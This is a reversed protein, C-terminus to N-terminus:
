KEVKFVVSGQSCCFRLTAADQGIQLTAFAVGRSPPFIYPHLQDIATICAKDSEELVIRPYDVTFQEGSGFIRCGGLETATLILKIVAM